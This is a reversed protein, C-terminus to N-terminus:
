GPQYYDVNLKDRNILTLVLCSFNLRDAFKLDGVGPGAYDAHRHDQAHFHDHALSTYMRTIMADSAIFKLDHVRMGPEYGIPKFAGAEIDLVGGHESSADALDADAQAFLSAVVSRDAFARFMLHITALDGWCLKDAAEAFRQPYNRMPGDYEPGKLHHEG